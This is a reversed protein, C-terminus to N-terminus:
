NGGPGCGRLGCAIAVTAAVAGLTLAVAVPIVFFPKEYWETVVSELQLAHNAEMGKMKDEWAENDVQHNKKELELDNAALKRETKVAQDIRKQLREPDARVALAAAQYPTQLAGAWPVRDGIELYVVCKRPDGPHCLMPRKVGPLKTKEWKVPIPVDSKALVVSPPLAFACSLLLKLIM